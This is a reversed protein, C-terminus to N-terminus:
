YNLFQPIYCDQKKCYSCIYKSKFSSSCKLEQEKSCLKIDNTNFSFTLVKLKKKHNSM